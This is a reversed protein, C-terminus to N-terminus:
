ERRHRLRQPLSTADSSMNECPGGGEELEGTTSGIPLPHTPDRQKVSIVVENADPRDTRLEREDVWFERALKTGV